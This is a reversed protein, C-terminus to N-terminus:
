KSQTEICVVFLPNIFYNGKYRLRLFYDFVTM